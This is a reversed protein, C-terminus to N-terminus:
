LENGFLNYRKKRNDKLLSTYIYWGLVIFKILEKYDYDITNQYTNTNSSIELLEELKYIMQLENVAHIVQLSVNEETEIESALKRLFESNNM